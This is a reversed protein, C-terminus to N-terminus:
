YNTAWGAVNKGWPSAATGRFNEALELCRHLSQFLTQYSMYMSRHTLLRPPSDHSWNYLINNSVWAEVGYGRDSEMMSELAVCYCVLM